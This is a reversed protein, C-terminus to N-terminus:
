LEMLQLGTPKDEMRRIKKHERLFIELTASVRADKVHGGYCRFQRDSFVGHAHLGAETVSGLLSAVELEEGVTKWTYERSAIDYYGLIVEDVAGIAQMKGGKIGTNALFEALAAALREGRGLRIVFSDGEKRSEM